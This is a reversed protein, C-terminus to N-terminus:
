NLASGPLLRKLLIWPHGGVKVAPCKTHARNMLGINPRAPFVREWESSFFVVACRTRPNRCYATTFTERRAISFLFAQIM